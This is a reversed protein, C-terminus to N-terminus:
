ENSENLMIEMKKMYSENNFPFTKSNPMKDTDYNSFLSLNKGRTFIISYCQSAGDFYVICYTGSELKKFVGNTSHISFFAAGESGGIEMCVKWREHFHKRVCERIEPPAKLIDEFGNNKLGFLKRFWKM